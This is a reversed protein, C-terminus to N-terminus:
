QDFRELWEQELWNLAGGPANYRALFEQYKEPWANKIKELNTNDAKRIMAFLMADFSHDQASLTQSELYDLISM